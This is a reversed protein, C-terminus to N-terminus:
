WNAYFGDEIFDEIFSEDWEEDCYENIRDYDVDPYRMDDEQDYKEYAIIFQNFDLGTDQSFEQKIELSLELTHDPNHEQYFDQENFDPTFDTTFEPTLCLVTFLYQANQLRRLYDFNPKPYARHFLYTKLPTKKRIRSFLIWVGRRAREPDYGFKVKLIYKVISKVVKPICITKVHVTLLM